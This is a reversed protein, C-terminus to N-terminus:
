QKKLSRLLRKKLSRKELEEIKERDLQIVKSKDLIQIKAEYPLHYEEPYAYSPTLLKYSEAQWIYHNLHSEDHWKAIIGQDYDRQIEDQLIHCMKLYAATKGGNVAGYVYYRGAGYPIHASSVTRREYPLQWRHRNYYGPHLVVLLEQQVPLFEEETVEQRCVINANFFFSYDFTALVEEIRLFMKFRFLTNGPWGLNEQRIRHIRDNEKEAYLEDADTFVFYEVHSKKLFYKEYSRYFAEWFAVYKGTCIYLIAVRAQRDLGAGGFALSQDM